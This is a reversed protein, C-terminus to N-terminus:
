VFKSKLNQIKSKFEQLERMIAKRKEEDKARIAEKQLGDLALAIERVTEFLARQWPLLDARAFQKQWKEDEARRERRKRQDFPHLGRREEAM